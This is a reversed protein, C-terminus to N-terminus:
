LGARLAAMMTLSNVDFRGQRVASVAEAPSMGAAAALAARRMGVQTAGIRRWEAWVERSVYPATLSLVGGTLWWLLDDVHMGTSASAQMMRLVEASGCGSGLPYRAVVEPGIGKLSLRLGADLGGLRAWREIEGMSLGHGRLTVLALVDVVEALAPWGLWPVVLQWDVDAACLREWVADGVGMALM